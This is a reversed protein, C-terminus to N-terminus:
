LPLPDGIQSSTLWAAQLTSRCVRVTLRVGRAM